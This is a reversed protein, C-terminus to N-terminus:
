ENTFIQFGNYSEMNHESLDLGKLEEEETVRVGVIAKVISFVIFGAGFAWIFVSAVGIAQVGLLGMGGGYFLGGAGDNLEPHTFLGAALTGWAGNVGHVSVAGVPDDVKLVKDIFEIAFVVLVGAVLGIIISAGPTVTACPSTIAVLGALCGNLSMSIDSKGYRLWSALLATLTGGCAALSTNMAILGISSDATTTSGPNFGFWGFWLIFVGLAALPINHGPIARPQGDSSYKGIRPGVVIAGALAVWGGVSHVVTSGAFDIFGLGELWGAGPDGLWLSGWAWHGSIPYVIGTVIMTIIIYSSFKMREAIGGSVITAATAAFVSQFFWFTYTWMDGTVSDSAIMFGSTGIFGGADLGFMLAFGFLFFIISGAAFDLFNKMIINGASKARVFGAEVCAFGAQMFMVLIAAILTWLTNANDQSLFPLEEVVIEQASAISPALVLVSVLASALIAAGPLRRSGAGYGLCSKWSM